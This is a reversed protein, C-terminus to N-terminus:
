RQAERIIREAEDVAALTEMLLECRVRAVVLRHLAREVEDMVFAEEPSM